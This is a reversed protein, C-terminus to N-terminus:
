CFKTFTFFTSSGIRKLFARRSFDELNFPKPKPFVAMVFFTTRSWQGRSNVEYTKPRNRPPGPRSKATSVIFSCNPQKSHKKRGEGCM